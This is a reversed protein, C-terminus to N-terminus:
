LFAQMVQNAVDFGRDTLRLHDDCRELCRLETYKRIEAAYRTFLSAGFRERFVRDDVGATLRLGLIMCEGMEDEPTLEETEEDPLTRYRLSSAHKYRRHGICSAAAAGFGLYPVGTWYGLNHRCEFGPKAYNSIEYRGYGAATLVDKTLHYLERDLDEDTEEYREYFPTNEELILSYASIHRPELGIVTELTRRLSAATQEPIGTMLDVNINSFGEARANRCSDLFDGFSHIRGLIKLERDDASQLGISLRNFGGRRYVKLKDRTLTGPNAELSIEADGSFVFKERLASLVETLSEAAPLSPTGGGFFVSTVRYRDATEEPVERIEDLLDRIYADRAAEDYAGSFFDCYGCKRVCFPIHIYIELAQREARDITMESTM